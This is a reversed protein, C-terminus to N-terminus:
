EANTYVQSVTVYGTESDVYRARVSGSWDSDTRVTEAPPTLLTMGSDRGALELGEARTQASYASDPAPGAVPRLRGLYWASGVIVLLSALVAAVRWGPPSSAPRLREPEVPEGAVIAGADLGLHINAKMEAALVDWDLGAPIADLHEALGDRIARSQDVV